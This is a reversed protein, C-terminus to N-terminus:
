GRGEKMDCREIFDASRDGIEIFDIAEDDM